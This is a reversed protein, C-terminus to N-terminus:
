FTSKWHRGALRELPAIKTEYEQISRELGSSRAISVRALPRATHVGSIPLQQALVSGSSGTGSQRHLGLQRNVKATIPLLMECGDIWFYSRACSFIQWRWWSLQM